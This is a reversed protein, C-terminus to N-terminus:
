PYGGSLRSACLEQLNAFRNITYPPPLGFPPLAGRCEINNQKDQSIWLPPFGAYYSFGGTRYLRVTDVETAGYLGPHSAQSTTYDDVRDVTMQYM